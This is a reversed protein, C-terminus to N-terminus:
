WFAPDEAPLAKVQSATISEAEFLQYQSTSCLLGLSCVGARTMSSNPSAGLFEAKRCEDFLQQHGALSTARTLRYAQDQLATPHAQGADRPQQVWQQPMCPRYCDRAFSSSLVFHVRGERLYWGNNSLVGLVSQSTVCGCIDTLQRRVFSMFVFSLMGKHKSLLVM